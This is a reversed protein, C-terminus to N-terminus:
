ECKNLVTDTWLRRREAGIVQALVVVAGMGRCPELWVSFPCKNYVHASSMMLHRESRRPGWPSGRFMQINSTQMECSFNLFCKDLFDFTEAERTRGFFELKVLIFCFIFSNVVFSNKQNKRSKYKANKKKKTIKTNKKKALFNIAHEKDNKTM